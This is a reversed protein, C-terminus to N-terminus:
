YKAFGRCKSAKATAKEPHQRRHCAKCLSILNDPDFARKPNDELHEIHHVEAAETLKGYRKCIQCMYGDRRLIKQRTRKWRASGYFADNDHSYEM